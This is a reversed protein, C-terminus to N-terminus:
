LWWSSSGEKMFDSNQQKRLSQSNAIGGYPSNEDPLYHSPNLTLPVDPNVCQSDIGGQPVILLLKYSWLYKPTEGSSRVLHKPHNCRCCSDACSSYSLPTYERPVFVRSISEYVLGIIVSTKPFRTLSKLLLLEIEGGCNFTRTLWLAYTVNMCLAFMLM